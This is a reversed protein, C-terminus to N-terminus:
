ASLKSIKGIANRGIKTRCFIVIMFFSFITIISIFSGHVFWKQPPYELIVSYDGTQNVNFGNVVGYLPHSHVQFQNKEEHEKITAVWLPDYAEALSITYQKTANKINLIYKTPDIKEVGGITAPHTKYGFLSSVIVNSGSLNPQSRVNDNQFLLLSDLDIKSDSNIKLDYTGKNLHLSNNSIIWGLGPKKNSAFISDHQLSESCNECGNNIQKMSIKLNCSECANARIAITYNTNKVININTYVENGPVLSLINGNSANNGYKTSNQLLESSKKFSAIGFFPTPNPSNNTITYNYIKSGEVSFPKTEMEYLATSNQIDNSTTDNNIFNLGTVNTRDLSSNLANSHNNTTKAAIVDEFIRAPEIQDIKVNDIIYMSPRPSASLTLIQFKAFKTGKPPIISTSFSDKFTGDKPDFMTDASIEKKASDFYVTRSHLQKVDKASIDLSANYNGNDAVPIYDTSIINWGHKDGRKLDVRLSHNGNLPTKTELSTSVLDDDYNFWDSQRITALPISVGKREFDSGFVTNKSNIPEIKVYASLDEADFEPNASLFAVSMLDSNPPTRFQGSMTKSFTGNSIHREDINTMNAPLLQLIGTSQGKSDRFSTEAEFLYAIQIHDEFMKNIATDIKKVQTSPIFSFMNLANFGAVNELTLIHKGKALSLNSIREWVFDNSIGDYTDIVKIPKNDVYIKITGGKEGKLVRTFLDYQNDAKSLDKENPVEFPLSLNAGFAKTVVLGRDFDFDWNRIRLQQLYPHFEAHTLDKTTSKSWVNSPSNEFTYDFPAIILADSAFMPVLGDYSSKQNLLLTDFNIMASHNDLGIRDNLFFISNNLANYSPVADLSNLMDLGGDVATTHIPISVQPVANEANSNGLQFIKFFGINEVNKLDLSYIKNLLDINHIDPSASRKSWTDNHFVVYKSGLPYIFNSINQSRDELISSVLFGYYNKAQFNYETSEISAKNSDVEYISGVRGNTKWTTEDSTPMFYVKDTKTSSLYEDLKEFEAPLKVPKLPEMRADYFPLSSLLISTILLLSFGAGIVFKQMRKKRQPLFSFVHYSVIGILFAYALSILFSWKDSDRFLWTFQSLLPISLLYNYYQIPSQTGMALIIGVIACITFLLSYKRFIPFSIASFSIIPVVFSFILSFYYLPADQTIKIDSNLWYAMVRISNVFNAERSLLDLNEHTLAYNPTLVGTQSALLYPYIWYSNVLLYFSIISLLTIVVRSTIKNKKFLNNLVFILFSAIIIIGYFVTMHPTSSAITWLLTSLLIPKWSKPNRFSLLVSVLFLPLLSYGLWLYWHHIRNFSWVNYAYFLSGLVASLEVYTRLKSFRDKFFILFSFYFSISSIAFVLIVMAKSSIASSIGISGLLYNLGIIPFRTVFEFGDISGKEIWLWLRDSAYDPTDFYPFDGTILIGDDLLPYVIFVLPALPLLFLLINIIKERKRQFYIRSSHDKFKIPSM